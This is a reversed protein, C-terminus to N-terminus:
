PKGALFGVHGPAFRSPGYGSLIRVRFGTGRVERALESRRILRLRHTEEDRRYLEGVRRFSTIRRTLLGHERDEEATVLVAWGDGETFTRRPGTGPVRGPEAVDFILVGGKILAGHVRGFLERLRPETNGSDFLYNFCEGVAAVAVCPPLDAALLSGERFEGNPVRVRAMAVMAASIDIGLVDYGASSMAASLIGSGCGLDIVLGSALGRRRLADLLVTAANTALGGFGADHIYALDEKYANTM